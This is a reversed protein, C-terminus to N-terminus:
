SGPDYPTELADLRREIDEIAALIQENIDAQADLLKFVLEIGQALTDIDKNM